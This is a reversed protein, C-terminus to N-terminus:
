RRPKPSAFSYVVRSGAHEVTVGDQGIHLIRAGQVMDNVGYVQGNIIAKPADGGWIVGAVRLTPPKVAPEEKGGPLTAAPDPGPPPAAKPFLDTFPDRMAHATYAPPPVPAVSREPTKATAVQADHQAQHEVLLTGLPKIAVPASASAPSGGWARLWGLSRLPGRVFFFAFVVMLGLVIRKELQVKKEAVM